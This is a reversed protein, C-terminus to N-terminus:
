EEPRAHRIDNLTEPTHSTKVTAYRLHFHPSAWTVLPLAACSATNLATLAGIRVSFNKLLLGWAGKGAPACPRAYAPKM